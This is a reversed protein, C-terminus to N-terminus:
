NSSRFISLVISLDRRGRCTRPKGGTRMAASAGILGGSPPFWFWAAPCLDPCCIQTNKQEFASASILNRKFLGLLFMLLSLLEARAHALQGVGSSSLVQVSCSRSVLLSTLLSALLPCRKSGDLVASCIHQTRPM